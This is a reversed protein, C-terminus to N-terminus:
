KRTPPMAAFSRWTYDGVMLLLRDDHGWVALDFRFERDDHGIERVLLRCPEHDHPEAVVEVRGFGRPLGALGRAALVAGCAVLCGDLLPAPILWSAAHDERLARAPLAHLRAAHWGDDGIALEALTRFQPGHVVRAAHSQGAERYRFQTYPVRPERWAPPIPPATAQRARGTVITREVDVLRGSRDVQPALLRLALADGDVVARGYVVGRGDPRIKFPAVITIDELVVGPAGGHTSFSLQALESLLELSAVAPLLPSGDLVHERLYADSARARHEIESAPGDCQLVSDVLPLTRALAAAGDLAVARAAGLRQGDPDGVTPGAIMANADDVDGLLERVFHNSGETVSMLTRGRRQLQERTGGRVSMGVEDWAPFAISVARRAPYAAAYAVVLADLAASSMAYDTQGHNGSQGAVSSLCVLLEIPDDATLEMLHTAAWLKPALTDRFDAAPKGVFARSRQVGAGHVIARVPGDAARIADLLERTIDRDGLDAAHYRVTAGAATMREINREIELAGVIAAVARQWETAKPPLGTLARLDDLVSQRLTEPDLGRWRALDGPLATRGVLHLNTVGLEILRLALEATIGRAGGTVIAYPVGRLAAVRDDDLAPPPTQV